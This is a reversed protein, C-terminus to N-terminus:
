PRRGYGCKKADVLGKPVGKPGTPSFYRRVTKTMAASGAFSANLKRRSRADYGLM